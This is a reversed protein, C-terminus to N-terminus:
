RLSPLLDFTGLRLLLTILMSHRTTRREYVPSVLFFLRRSRCSIVSARWASVRFSRNVMTEVHEQQVAAAGKPPRGNERLDTQLQRKCGMLFEDKMPNPLRLVRQVRAPGTTHLQTADFLYVGSVVFQHRIASCYHRLTSDSGTISPKIVEYMGDVIIDTLKAFDSKSLAAIAPWDSYGAANAVKLFTAIHAAYGELSETKIPREGIKRREEKTAYLRMVKTGATEVGPGLLQVTRRKRTKEAATTGDAPGAAPEADGAASAPPAVVASPATAAAPPADMVPASGDVGDEDADEEDEEEEDTSGDSSQSDGSSCSSSRARGVEM